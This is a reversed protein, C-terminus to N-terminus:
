LEWVIVWSCTFCGKSMSKAFLAYVNGPFGVLYDVRFFLAYRPNVNVCRFFLFSSTCDGEDGEKCILSHSAKDKEVVTGHILLPIVLNEGRRIDLFFSYGHKFVTSGYCHM